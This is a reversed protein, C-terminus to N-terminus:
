PFRRTKVVRLVQGCRWEKTWKCESGPVDDCLLAASWGCDLPHLAKRLISLESMQASLAATFIVGIFLGLVIIPLHKM